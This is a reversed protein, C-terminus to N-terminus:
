LAVGELREAARDIAADFAALVRTHNSNDNMSEISRYGVRAAEERLMEKAIRFAIPDRVLAAAAQLAGVACRRGDITRYHGQAWDSELAIIAKASQLLNMARMESPVAPRGFAIRGLPAIRVRAFIIALSERLFWRLGSSGSGAADSTQLLTDCAGDFPM